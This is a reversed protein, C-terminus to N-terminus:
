FHIITLFWGVFFGFVFGLLSNKLDLGNVAIDYAEETNYQKKMLDIKKTKSKVNKEKQGRYPLQAREQNNSSTNIVIEM